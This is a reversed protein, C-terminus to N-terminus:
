KVGTQSLSRPNKNKSIFLFILILLSLFSVVIGLKFSQPAFVFKIAHQGEPVLVSRVLYNTQFIKWKKGDLYVQWDPHYADSLVVFGAHEMNAELWVENPTSYKIKVSSSDKLPVSNLLTFIKPNLPENIIIGESASPGLKKILELSKKPDPEFIARHVVYARPLVTPREFIKVEDAYVLNKQSQKYGPLLAHLRDDAPGIIYRVNLLDLIFRKDSEIPMARLAPPRLNKQFHNEIVLTNVFEVYREPVLGLFYGLDDVGFGTATNPYFAWFNGYSRVEHDKSKLFEIYPVKAFSDFRKPHERHIYLFLELFVLTFIIIGLIRQKVLARDKLWLITQFLILLSLAFASATLSIQIHESHRLVLLHITTIIILTISFILGKTFLNKNYLITRVGMGSLIAVTFAALPPTHIAYRCVDFIPLYGLWNIIPLGYEKGIIIFLLGGLFYNLGKKHNNFFSLFALALPLTGIYGGWWGAFTFNFTLNEKQFFHPLALTLARDRQEEMLLGTGEPHGNWFEGFLNRVFPFFVIAALGVGIAYASIYSIFIKKRNTKPPLSFVRFLFFALGFANVLFVHEPHGAFLTMAVIIALYAISRRSVEKIILRDLTLLLLPTLIDVNATWYQLLVMPGSLMFIIASCLAPIDKFGLRRMLWFTFLGALLLRTLILIDWAFINPLLYLILNLPYFMGVELMGILAYGCAQHPNWLPLIGRHLNRKIFEYIPEESVPADTGNVPIFRPKNNEQGYVGNPLAQSNATTIKLTKGLFVIDYFALSLLVALLVFVTPFIKIPQTSLM